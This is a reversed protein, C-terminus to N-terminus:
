GENRSRLKNCKNINYARRLSSTSRRADRWKDEINGVRTVMRHKWRIGYSVGIMILGVLAIVVGTIMTFLPKLNTLGFKKGSMILIVILGAITLLLGSVQAIIFSKSYITNGIILFGKGMGKFVKKVGM